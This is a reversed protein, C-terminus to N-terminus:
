EGLNIIKSFSTPNLSAGGVLAGDVSPLNLIENCNQPNVSGGYLVINSSLNQTQSKIFSCIDQIEQTSPTLNTGISWVPEYAIIIPLSLDINQLSEKLQKTLVEKTSGKKYDNLTEGICLIPLINFTQLQLIKQSITKSSEKYIHRRESHGVICFDVQNDFAMSASLEGTYAGEQYESINQLGIKINRALKQCLPFYISPVALGVLNQKNTKITKFFNKISQTDMNMKWNGFIYKM